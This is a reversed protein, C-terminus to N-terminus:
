IANIQIIRARIETATDTVNNTSTLILVDGEAISYYDANFSENGSVTNNISFESVNLTSILSDANFEKPFPGIFAFNRVRHDNEIQNYIGNNAYISSVFILVVLSIINISKM